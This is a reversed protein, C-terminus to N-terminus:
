MKFDSIYTYIYIYIHIQMHSVAPLEQGETGLACLQVGKRTVAFFEMLWIPRGRQPLEHVVTTYQQHYSRTYVEYVLLICLRTPRAAPPLERVLTAKGNLSGQSFPHRSKPILPLTM